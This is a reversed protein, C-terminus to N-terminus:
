LFFFEIDTNIQKSAHNKKQKSKNQKILDFHKANM